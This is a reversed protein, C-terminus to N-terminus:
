LHASFDKSESLEKKLAAVEVELANGAKQVQGIAGQHQQHWTLMEGTQQRAKSMVDYLEQFKAVLVHLFKRLESHQSHQVKQNNTIQACFESM